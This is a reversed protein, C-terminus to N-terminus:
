RKLGRGISDSKRAPRGVRSSKQERQGKKPDVIPNSLLDSERKSNRRNESQDGSSRFPMSLRDNRDDFHDFREASPNSEFRKKDREDNRGEGDYLVEYEVSGDDCPHAKLFDLKVLQALHHRFRAGRLTSIGRLQKEKFRIESRPKNEQKSRRITQDDISFLLQRTRPMLCDLTLRLFESSFHKKEPCSFFARPESNDARVPLASNKRLM